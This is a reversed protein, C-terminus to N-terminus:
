FQTQNNIKISSLLILTYTIEYYQCFYQKNKRLSCILILNSLIKHGSLFHKYYFEAVSSMSMSYDIM